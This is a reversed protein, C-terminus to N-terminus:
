ETAKKVYKPYKQCLQDWTMKGTSTEKIVMTIENIPVSIQQKTDRERLTVPHPEELTEYDLTIVFPIGLEDCYKYRWGISGSISEIRHPVYEEALQEAVIIYFDTLRNDQRTKKM